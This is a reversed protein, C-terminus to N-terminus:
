NNKHNSAGALFKEGCKECYNTNTNLQGCRPCAVSIANNVHNQNAARNANAQANMLKVAIDAEADTVKIDDLRGTNAVSNIKVGIKTNNLAGRAAKHEPTYDLREITFTKVSLGKSALTKNLQKKLDEAYDFIEGQCIKLDKSMLKGSLYGKVIGSTQNRLIERIEDRTLENNGDLPLSNVFAYFDDVMYYYEGFAVAECEVGLEDDRCPIAMRGGLGWEASLETAMDIATIECNEYAKKGGILKTKKGPNYLSFVTAKGNSMTKTVEDVRVLAVIGSDLAIETNPAVGKCDVKWCAIEENSRRRIELKEM